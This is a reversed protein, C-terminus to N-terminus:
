SGNDKKDKKKEEPSNTPIKINLRKLVDESKFPKKITDCLNAEGICVIKEKGSQYKNLLEAHEWIPIFFTARFMPLSNGIYEGSIVGVINDTTELFVPAGSASQGVSFQTQILVIDYVYPPLSTHPLGIKSFLMIKEADGSRTLITYVETKPKMKKKAEIKAFSLADDFSQLACIALDSPFDIAILATKMPITVTQDLDEIHIQYHIRPSCYGLTDIEHMFSALYNIIYAEDAGSDILSAIYTEFQEFNCLHAVTYVILNGDEGRIIVGNGFGNTTEVQVSSRINSIVSAAQTYATGLILFALIIKKFM